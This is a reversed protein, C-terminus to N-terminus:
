GDEYGVAYEDTTRYVADGDDDGNGDCDGDCEYWGNGDGCGDADDNDVVDRVDDDGRDCGDDDDMHDDGNDDDYM